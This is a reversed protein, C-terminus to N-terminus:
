AASGRSRERSYRKAGRVSYRERCPHATALPRVTFSLGSESHVTSNLTDDHAVTEASGVVASNGYGAGIDPIRPCKRDLAHVPRWSGSAVYSGFCAPSSYRRGCAKHGRREYRIVTAADNHPVFIRGRVLYDPGIYIQTISIGSTTLAGSCCDSALRWVRAGLSSALKTAASYKSPIAGSSLGRQRIALSWRDADM